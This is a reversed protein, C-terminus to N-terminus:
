KATVTIEARMGPHYRCFYATTGAVSFTIRASQGRGLNQTDWAKGNETATHPAIDRNIWEVTDGQRITLTAPAFKFKAIDVVHSRPSAKNAAYASVLTAAITAAALAAAVVTM